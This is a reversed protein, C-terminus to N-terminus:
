RWRGVWSAWVSLDSKWRLEGLQHPMTILRLKPSAADQLIDPRCNIGAVSQLRAVARRQWVM